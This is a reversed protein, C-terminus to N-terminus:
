HAPESMRLQTNIAVHGNTATASGNPSPRMRVEVAYDALVYGGSHALLRWTGAADLLAGIPVKFHWTSINGVPITIAQCAVEHGSPDSMTIYFGIRRHVAPLQLSCAVIWVAEVPLAPVNFYEWGLGEAHILGDRIEMNNCPACAVVKFGAKVDAATLEQVDDPLYSATSRTARGREGAVALVTVDPAIIRSASGPRGHQGPLSGPKGGEGVEVRYTGSRLFLRGAVVDGGDGGDGGRSGVGVAGQGGGGAGPNGDLLAQTSAIFEKAWKPTRPDDIQIKEGADTQFHQTGANGGRGGRAQPGIAGGGGGGAGLARGGEGGLSVMSSADNVITTQGGGSAFWFFVSLPVGILSALTGWVGFKSWFSLKKYRDRIRM